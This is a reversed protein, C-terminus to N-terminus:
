GQSATETSAATSAPASGKAKTDYLARKAEYILGVVEARLNKLKAKPNQDITVGFTEGAYARLAEADMANLEEATKFMAEIAADAVPAAPVDEAGGKDNDTQEEPDEVIYRLQLLEEAVEKTLYLFADITHTVGKHLLPTIARYRSTIVSEEAM